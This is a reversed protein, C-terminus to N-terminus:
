FNQFLKEDFKQISNIRRYPFINEEATFPYKLPVWIPQSYTVRVFNVFELNQMKARMFNVFELNQMFNVRMFNVFELNQM